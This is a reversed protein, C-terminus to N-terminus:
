EPFRRQAKSAGLLYAMRPLRVHQAAALRAADVDAVLSAARDGFAMLLQMEHREGVTVLRQCQAIACTRPTLCTCDHKM